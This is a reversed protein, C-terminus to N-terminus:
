NFTFTFSQLGPPLGSIVPESLPHRVSGPANTAYIRRGPLDMAGFGDFPGHRFPRYNPNQPDYRTWPYLVHLENGAASRPASFWAMGYTPATNGNSNGGMATARVGPWGAFYLPKIPHIGSLMATVTSSLSHNNVVARLAAQDSTTLGYLNGGSGGWRPELFTRVAKQYSAEGKLNTALGAARAFLLSRNIGAWHNESFRMGPLAVYPGSYNGAFSENSGRDHISIPKVPVAAMSHLAFTARLWTRAQDQLVARGRTWAVYHVAMVAAINYHQYNGSTLEKGGYYWVSGRQGLEGKLYTDWWAYMDWGGSGTRVPEAVLAIAAALVPLNYSGGGMTNPFNTNVEVAWNCSPPQGNLVDALTQEMLGPGGACSPANVNLTATNSVAQGCSNTARLQYGGADTSQVNTLTLTSSTAGAVPSGNKLWQLAPAPTGSATSTFSATAGANVTQSAPQQVIQPAVCSVQVVDVFDLNWSGVDFSLRLIRNSGASLTVPVVKTQYTQWGGTSTITQTGSVDAGDILVRFRTTGAFASAYRVRLEYPGSQGINVAYEAWEGNTLFGIHYGGGPIPGVDMDDTRYVNFVNGPTTDHYALGEGGRDYNEAQLRGPLGIPSAGWPSQGRVNISDLNWAGLDFSVRLVRTGATLNVAVTKIVYNHWGGTSNVVQTGSVNVGNQEVHFRTTGAYDSALRFDLLYSGSLAVSVTYEAWEGDALFGVHYGGGPISGVDMDDTRYVNFVNGATTDHYAIGEGGNDYREAEIL